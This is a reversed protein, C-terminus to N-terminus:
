QVDSVKGNMFTVKVDKYVYIQKAGLNFIKEPRGLASQVEDTSMGLQVTQPEGQQQQGSQDQGGQGQSAQGQGGQDQDGQNQQQGNQAQQQGSQGQQDESAITFVRGIIDEITGADAKELYGKAFQFVVEGKMGTPPDVNNCSDCSVVQFAIKGKDLNVDIKLPYVKSGRQLYQSVSKMMGACFGASPRLNNDQFKAPCLALAKWPVSIIGGKQVSLLTGAEVVATGNSGMKVLKYQAALQEQLTPAQAHAMAMSLLTAVFIAIALRPLNKRM